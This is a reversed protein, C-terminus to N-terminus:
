RRVGGVSRQWILHRQVPIPDIPTPNCMPTDAINPPMFQTYNIWNLSTGGIERGLYQDRTPLGLESRIPNIWQSEVQGPDTLNGDQLNPFLGHVFEHLLVLGVSNSELLDNSGYQKDFDKFDIKVDSYETRQGTKNDTFVVPEHLGFAVKESDNAAILNFQRSADIAKGLPIPTLSAFNCNTGGEWCHKQDGLSMDYMSRLPDFIINCKQM